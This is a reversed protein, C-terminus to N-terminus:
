YLEHKLNETNVVLSILVYYVQLHSLTVWYDKQIQAVFYVRHNLLKAIIM